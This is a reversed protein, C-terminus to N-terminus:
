TLNFTTRSRDDLCDSQISSSDSYPPETSPLVSTFPLSGGARPGPEPRVSRPTPGPAVPVPLPASPPVPAREVPPSSPPSSTAQTIRAWAIYVWVTLIVVLAIHEWGRGTARHAGGAGFRGGGYCFRRPFGGTLDGQLYLHPMSMILRNCQMSPNDDLVTRRSLLWARVYVAIRHSPLPWEQGKVRGLPGALTLM